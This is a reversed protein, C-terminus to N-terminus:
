VTVNIVNKVGQYHGSSQQAVCFYMFFEYYSAIAISMGDSCKLSEM